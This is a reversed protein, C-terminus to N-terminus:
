CGGGAFAVGLVWGEGCGGLLDGELTVGRGEELGFLGCKDELFRKENLVNEFALLLRFPLHILQLLQNPLILMLLSPPPNPHNPLPLLNHLLPPLITLPPIVQVLDLELLIIIDDLYLVNDDLLLVPDDVLVLVVPLFAVSLELLDVWM